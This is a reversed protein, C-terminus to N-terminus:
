LFIGGLIRQLGRKAEWEPLWFCLISLPLFLALFGLGRAFWGWPVRGQAVSYGWQGLFGFLLIYFIITGPSGACVRLRAGAEGKVLECKWVPRFGNRGFGRGPWLIFRGEGRMTLKDFLPAEDFGVDGPRRHITGTYDRLIGMVLEPELRTELCFREGMPWKM